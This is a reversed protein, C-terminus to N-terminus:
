SWPCEDEQKGHQASQAISRYGCEWQNWGTSLRNSWGIPFSESRDLSHFLSSTYKTKLALTWVLWAFSDLSKSMATDLPLTCHLPMPKIEWMWAVVLRVSHKWWPCSVKVVPMTCRHKMTRSFVHEGKGSCVCVCEDIWDWWTLSIRIVALMSWRSPLLFRNANALRSYHRYDESFFLLHIELM